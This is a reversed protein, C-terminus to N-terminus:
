GKRRYKSYTENWFLLAPGSWLPATSFQSDIVFVRPNNRETPPWKVPLLQTVAPTPDGYKAFNTWMTTMKDVMDLELFSQFLKAKLKFLYFLEDAHTAGPAGAFGYLQKVVNMWGSFSFQYAYLPRESSRLMLDVTAAVSYTIGSDGAYRSFKVLNNKSIKEYNMYLKNFTDAVSKKEGMTPFSLDRPLSDIFNINSITTDNEKGVFMYGEANNFGVIVPLKTYKGLSLLNYPTDNLFQDNGEIRKEACPVFINESLVVDGRARPVRASLLKEASTNVFINYLEYPDSTNYGLQAALASATSVPEFQFSWPSMASGSQMIARHFLGASMPSLLHYVVSASGASEGFLTISNPDGGFAEINTKVWKLAELQDKLGANGPAEQIGLCLFGMVELRYNLTVLIVEHKVLYEPGYIFPSGSGDRFGGGHIYVMVPLIRGRNIPTYVNLTLCNDETGLVTTATFRQICRIHEDQAELVGSWGTVPKPAQFRGATAYPIGLYAAHSGDPSLSGRLLGGSVRVAPTRQPLLRAAWLSWLAVWQQARM